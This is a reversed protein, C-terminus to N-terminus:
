HRQKAGKKAPTATRTASKAAPKLQRKPRRAAPMKAAGFAAISAKAVPPRSAVTMDFNSRRARSWDPAPLRTSPAKDSGVALTWSRKARRVFELGLATALRSFTDLNPSKRGREIRSIETQAIGSREALAAQTLNQSQRGAIIAGILLYRLEKARLDAIAEPGETRAGEELERYFEDFSTSQKVRMGSM